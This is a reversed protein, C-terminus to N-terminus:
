RSLDMEPAKEEREVVKADLSEDIHVHEGISINQLMAQQEPEMSTIQHASVSNESLKLYIFSEDKEVFDGIYNANSNARWVDCDMEKGVAKLVNEELQYSLNSSALKHDELVLDSNLGVETWDHASVRNLLSSFVTDIGKLVEIADELQERNDSDLAETITSCKRPDFLEVLESIKTGIGDVLPYTSGDSNIAIGEFGEESRLDVHEMLEQFSLQSGLTETVLEGGKDFSIAWDTNNNDMM